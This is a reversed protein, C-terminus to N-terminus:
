GTKKPRALKLLPSLVRTKQWMQICVLSILPANLVWYVAPQSIMERFITGAAPPVGPKPQCFNKQFAELSTAQGTSTGDFKFLEGDHNGPIAIIKGPYKKYPTYFQAHYGKDTNDYYDVDGLHLFFAPSAEPKATNYDGAMAEAILEPMPSTENGTDGVAHITISKSKEIAAVGQAGIIDSLAMTPERNPKPIQELKTKIHDTMRTGVGPIKTRKSISVATFFPHAFRLPEESNTKVGSHTNAYKAM